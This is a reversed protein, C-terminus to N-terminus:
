ASRPTLRTLRPFPQTNRVFGDTASARVTSLVTVRLSELAAISVKAIQAYWWGIVRASISSIRPTLKLLPVISTSKSAPHIRGIPRLRVGPRGTVQPM